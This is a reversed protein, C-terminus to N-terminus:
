SNRYTRARLMGVNFVLSVSLSCEDYLLQNAGGARSAVASSSAACRRPTTYAALRENVRGGEAGISEFRSEFDSANLVSM